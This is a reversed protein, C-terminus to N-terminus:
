LDGDHQFALRTTQIMDKYNHAGRYRIYVFTCTYTGTSTAEGRIYRDGAYMQDARVDLALLQNHLATPASVGMDAKTLTKTTGGDTTTAEAIDQDTGAGAATTNSVVKFATILHSDSATTAAPLILCLCGDYEKMDVMVGSLDTDGATDYVSDIRVNDCLRSNSSLSM